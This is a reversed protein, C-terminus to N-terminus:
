DGLVALQRPLDSLSDAGEETIVMNDEIRVGGRGPLYIGPEITFTMGHTLPMPNDGRIYPEEHGELGLGHGTRHLFYPGYGANQIVDRAAQDIQGAQVGPASRDRAATNAELVVQAIRAFEEEPQGISFTRTLDSFYGEISAGWDLILLDGFALRRDGPVAHPNASNPGAAVIPYFPMEPTSGNRLMQLTLEAALESETMGAKVQPLTAQLARQAVQVAKRMAAIEGADKRMRLAAVCAEAPLFEALPAAAELLSLELVRLRRPEVGVRCQRDLGAALAAQQFAGPWTAPDESYPFVRNAFPLQATKGTEMEPVIIIAPRDRVLIAVAPRESLHFHLGTFYVLSPGANLVLAELRQNELEALLRSHRSSYVNTPQPNTM